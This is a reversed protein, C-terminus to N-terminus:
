LDIRGTIFERKILKKGNKTTDDRHEKEFYELLDRIYRLNEMDIRGKINEDVMESSILSFIEYDKAEIIHLYPHSTMGNLIAGNQITEPGGMRKPIILHHYSANNRTFTYGMFDIKKLNYEDIMLRTINKMKGGMKNKEVM